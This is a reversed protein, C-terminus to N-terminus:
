ERFRIRAGIWRLISSPQIAAYRVKTVPGVLDQLDRALATGMADFTIVNFGPKRGHLDHRRLWETFKSALEEPLALDSHSVMTGRVFGAATRTWIGSSFYDGRVELKKPYLSM